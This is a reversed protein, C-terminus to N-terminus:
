GRIQTSLGWYHFGSWKLQILTARRAAVRKNFYKKKVRAAVAVVRFSILYADALLSDVVRNIRRGEAQRHVGGQPECDEDQTAGLDVEEGVVEEEHDEQGRAEQPWSGVPHLLAGEQLHERDTAPSLALVM